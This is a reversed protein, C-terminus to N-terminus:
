ARERKFAGKGQTLLMRFFIYWASKGPQPPLGRGIRKMQHMYWNLEIMPGFMKDVAAVGTRRLPTALTQYGGNFIRNPLDPVIAFPKALGVMDLKGSEVAEEMAAQSRFGGTIVLPVSCVARVKDAYDLFYAERQRTSERMGDLMAPSEYNGGSIEVLDVGEQVLKEVVRVSDEESFGGKQFDASNLKVSVIFHKATRNRINRFIELLFRMRNELNGGWKDTRRNHLPSLFQSILYGHAAHIQVGSFGAKEAIAAAKGFREILMLIDNDDLAKPPNFFKAMGGGLPVASPAVPAPSLDKPSQKGPHNIQMLLLTNDATGAAAWNKLLDLDREDEIVVDDASGLATYDVMVNGTVLIGAGGRAWTRYLEAYVADPRNGASIQESMAAKFLRNKVTQGNPLTLPTNLPTM